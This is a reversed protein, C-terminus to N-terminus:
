PHLLRLEWDAASEPASSHERTPSTLFAVQGDLGLSVYHEM